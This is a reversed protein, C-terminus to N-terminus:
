WGGVDTYNSRFVFVASMCVSGVPEPNREIKRRKKKKQKNKKYCGGRM